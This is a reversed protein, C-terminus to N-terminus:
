QAEGTAGGQSHPARAADNTESHCRGPIATSVVEDWAALRLLAVHDLGEPIADLLASLKALETAAETGLARDAQGSALLDGLGTDDFIQCVLEVFDPVEPGEGRIWVREQFSRDALDRLGEVLNARVQPPMTM